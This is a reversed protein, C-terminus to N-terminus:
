TIELGFHRVKVRRPTVPLFKFLIMGPVKELHGATDLVQCVEDAGEGWEVMGSIFVCTLVRRIRVRHAGPDGLVLMM